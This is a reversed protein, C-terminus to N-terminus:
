TRTRVSSRSVMVAGAAALALLAGGAIARLARGDDGGSASARARPAAFAVRPLEVRLAVPRAARRSRHGHVPRRARRTPQAPTSAPAAAQPRVVRPTPAPAPAVVAPKPTARPTVPAPDPRLTGAAPSPDPQLTQQQQASASGALTMGM